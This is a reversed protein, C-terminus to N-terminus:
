HPEDGNGTSVSSSSHRRRPNSERVQHPAYRRDNSAYNRSYRTVYYGLGIFYLALMWLALTSLCEKLPFIKQLTSNDLHNRDVWVKKIQNSLRSTAEQAAWLNLYSESWTTQGKFIQDQYKFTYHAQPSFTDNEGTAVLWEVEEIPLSTSLSFYHYLKFITWGTYGIACALVLSLFMLWYRNGHM